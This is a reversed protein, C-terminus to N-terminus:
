LKLILIQTYFKDKPQYEVEQSIIKVNNSGIYTVNGEFLVKSM